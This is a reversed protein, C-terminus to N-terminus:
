PNVMAREEPVGVFPSLHNNSGVRKPARSMLTAVLSGFLIAAAAGMRVASPAALVPLALM